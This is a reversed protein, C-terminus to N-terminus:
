FEEHKATKCLQFCDPLSCASCSHLTQRHTRSRFLTDQQQKRNQHETKECSPQRRVRELLYRSRILIRDGAEGSGRCEEPNPIASRVRFAIRQLVNQRLVRRKFANKHKQVRGAILLIESIEQRPGDLRDARASGKVPSADRKHQDPPWGFVLAATKAKGAPLDDDASRVM